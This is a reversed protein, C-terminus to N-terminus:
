FATNISCSLDPGMLQLLVGSDFVTIRIV